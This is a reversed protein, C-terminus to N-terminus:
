FAEDPQHKEESIAISITESVYSRKIEPYYYIMIIFMFFFFLPFLEFTQMLLLSVLGLLLTTGLKDIHGQIRYLALISASIILGLLIFGGYILIGLVFNHPGIAFSSMNGLYWDKDVLGYGIFPSKGIVRLAADWMGTRNTFTIDKELVDEVIYVAFENNHLSEGNFVVFFHFLLLFIFYGTIIYKKPQIGPILCILSFIIIASLSTMSGVIALTIIAVIIVAISNILWKKGYGICLINCIIGTILRCGMQNYNGGLLFSDFADDAAFMWDPFIIMLLLSAYIAASFSVALAKMLLSIQHSYYNFLLLALWVAIARYVATKIDTSSIFSFAILLLYFSIIILGFRTSYPRRLYFGLMILFGLICGGLALYSLPQLFPFVNFSVTTHAIMFCCFTAPLVKLDKLSIQM